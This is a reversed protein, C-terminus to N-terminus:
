YEPTYREGSQYNYVEGGRGTPAVFTLPTMRQMWNVMPNVGQRQAEQAAGIMGLAEPAVMPLAGIPKALKKIGNEIVPINRVAPHPPESYGGVVSNRNKYSQRFANERRGNNLQEPPVRRIREM